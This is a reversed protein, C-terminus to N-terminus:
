ASPGFDLLPGKGPLLGAIAGASVAGSRLLRPPGHALDVVTSAAGSLPPDQCLYVAVADGFAAMLDDCTEAPPEGSRNASSVALPGTSALVALALPHGPMRVGITDPDGGLDWARSIRSRPLVLTVGGPWCGVAVREARDDFAAITHAAELSSVLIPLGLDRPRRKAAFLRAVAAADDPRAAVGYVTDTPLVVLRGACAAAAAETM